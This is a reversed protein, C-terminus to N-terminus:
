EGRYESQKYYEEWTEPIKIIRHYPRVHDKCAIRPYYNGSNVEEQNTVIVEESDTYSEKGCVICKKKEIIDIQSLATVLVGLSMSGSIMLVHRHLILNRVFLTLAEDGILSATTYFGALAVMIVIYAGITMAAWLLAVQYKAMKEKKLEIKM